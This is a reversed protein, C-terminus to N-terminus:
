KIKPEVVNALNQLSIQWGRYCAEVPIADPIGERLIHVDTGVSVEKLTLTVQMGGPLNPGALFPRM